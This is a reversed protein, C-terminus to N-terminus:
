STFAATAVLAAFRALVLLISGAHIFSLLRPPM